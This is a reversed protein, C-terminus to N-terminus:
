GARADGKIDGHALQAAFCNKERGLFHLQPATFRKGVRRPNQRPIDIGDHDANKIVLRHMLKGPM